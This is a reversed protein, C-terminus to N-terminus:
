SATPQFKLCPTFQNHLSPFFLFLNDYLIFSFYICCYVMKADFNSIFLVLLSLFHLSSTLTRLISLCPSGLITQPTPFFSFNTFTPHKNSVKSYLWKELELGGNIKVGRNTLMKSYKGVGQNNPGGM